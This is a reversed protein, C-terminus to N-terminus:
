NVNKDTDKNSLNYVHKNMAYISGLAGIAAAYEVGGFDAIHVPGYTVGSFILKVNILIFGYIFATLTYSPKGTKINSILFHNVLYNIM